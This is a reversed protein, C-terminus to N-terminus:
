DEKGLDESKLKVTHSGTIAAVLSMILDLRGHTQGRDYDQASQIQQRAEALRSEVKEQNRELVSVDEILRICKSSAESREQVLNDRLKTIEELESVAAEYNLKQQEITAELEKYLPKHKRPM